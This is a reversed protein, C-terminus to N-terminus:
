TQERNWTLTETYHVANHLSVHLRKNLGKRLSISIHSKTNRNYCKTLYQIVSQFVDHFVSCMRCLQFSFSMFFIHRIHTSVTYVTMLGNRGLYQDMLLQFYLIFDLQSGPLPSSVYHSMLDHM